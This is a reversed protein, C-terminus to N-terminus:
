FGRVRVPYEPTYKYLRIHDSFVASTVPEDLECPALLKKGYYMQMLEGTENIKMVYSSNQTQIVFLKDLFAIM